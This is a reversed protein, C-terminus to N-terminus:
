FACQKEKADKAGVPGGPHINRGPRMLERIQPGLPVPRLRLGPTTPPV